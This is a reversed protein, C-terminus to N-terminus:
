DLWSFLWCIFFIIKWKTLPAQWPLTSVSLTPIIYYQTSIFYFPFAWDAEKSTTRVCESNDGGLLTVIARQSFFFFFFFTAWELDWLEASDAGSLKCTCMPTGWLPFPVSRSSWMALWTSLPCTSLPGTSLLTHNFVNPTASKNNRCALDTHTHDSHNTEVLPHHQMIWSLEWTLPSLCKYSTNRASIMCWLHLYHLSGDKLQLLKNKKIVSKWVWHCRVCECHGDRWFYTMRKIWSELVCWFILIQM